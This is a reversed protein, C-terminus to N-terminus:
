QASKFPKTNPDGGIQITQTPNVSDKNFYKTDPQIFSSSIKDVIEVKQQRNNPSSIIKSSILVSLIISAVVIFFILSLDKKKM